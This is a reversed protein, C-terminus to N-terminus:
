VDGAKRVRKALYIIPQRLVTISHFLSGSAHPWSRARGGTPARPCAATGRRRPRSVLPPPCPFPLPRPSRPTPACWTSPVSLVSITLPVPPTNPYLNLHRSLIPPAPRRTQAVIRPSFSISHKKHICKANPGARASRYHAVCVVRINIVSYM